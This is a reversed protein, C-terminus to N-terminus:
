RTGDKGDITGHGDNMPGTTAPETAPRGHAAAIVREVSGCEKMSTAFYPNAIATTTQLWRGGEGPAMPCYAVFLEAAVARSPPLADALAIAAVSAAKYRKRQEPLPQDRLAAAAAALAESHQRAPGTVHTALTRAADRLASADVPTEAQQKSGLAAQLKLYERFVSDIEADAASGPHIEHV